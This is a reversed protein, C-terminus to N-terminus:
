FIAVLRPLGVRVLLGVGTRDLVLLPHRDLVQHLCHDGRNLLVPCCVSNLALAATTTSVANISQWGRPNGSVLALIRHADPGHVWDM